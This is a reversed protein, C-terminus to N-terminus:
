HLVNFLSFSTNYIMALAHIHADTDVLVYLPLTLLEEALQPEGQETAIFSNRSLGHAVSPDMEIDPDPRRILRGNGCQLFLLVQQHIGFRFAIRGLFQDSLQILSM